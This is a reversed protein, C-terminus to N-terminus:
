SRRNRYLFDMQLISGNKGELLGVPAILEFGLDKLFDHMEDYLPEGEYMSTFSAEFVLYDIKPLLRTAGQLVNKEYGQVDLKLLVPSGIKEGSLINDLKDVQIQIKTTKSTIPIEEKQKESIPLVSSAHSHENKYFDIIGKENGLAVNHITVKKIDRLNKKFVEYMEPLPEFSFIEANPFKRTSALAFQGQNAGVDIITEINKCHVGIGDLIQSSSISYGGKFVRTINFGEKDILRLIKILFGIATM